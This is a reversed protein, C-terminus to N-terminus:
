VMGVPMVPHIISHTLITVLSLMVFAIDSAWNCYIDTLASVSRFCGSPAALNLIAAIAPASVSTRRSCDM